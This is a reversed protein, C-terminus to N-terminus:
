TTTCGIIEFFISSLHIWIPCRGWIPKFLSWTQFWWTVLVVFKPVCRGWLFGLWAALGTILKRMFCIVLKFSLPASLNPLYECHNAFLFMLKVDILSVHVIIQLFESVRLTGKSLADMRLEFFFGQKMDWSRWGNNKAQPDLFSTMNKFLYVEGTIRRVLFVQWVRLQTDTVGSGWHTTVFVDIMFLIHIELGVALELVIWIQGATCWM